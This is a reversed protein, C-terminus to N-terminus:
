KAPKLLYLMGNKNAALILEESSSVAVCSFQVARDNAFTYMCEATEIDFVRLTGDDSCTLLQVGDSVM